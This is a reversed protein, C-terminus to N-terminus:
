LKRQKTITKLSGISFVLESNLINVKPGLINDKCFAFIVTALPYCKIRGWRNLNKFAKIAKDKNRPHLFSALIREYWLFYSLFFV